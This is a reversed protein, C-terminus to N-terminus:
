EKNNINSDNNSSSQFDSICKVLKDLLTQNEPILQKEAEKHAMITDVEKQREHKYLENDYVSQYRNYHSQHVKNGTQQALREAVHQKIISYLENLIPSKQCLNFLTNQTINAEACFGATIISNDKLAWEVMHECLQAIREETWYEKRGKILIEEVRKRTEKNGPAFRGKSDRGTGNAEAEERAKKQKELHQVVREGVPVPYRKSM